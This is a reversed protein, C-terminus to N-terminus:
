AAARQEEIRAVTYRALKDYDQKLKEDRSMGERGTSYRDPKNLLVSYVDIDISGAILASLLKLLGPEDFRYNELLERVVSPLDFLDYCRRAMSEPLAGYKPHGLILLPKGAM